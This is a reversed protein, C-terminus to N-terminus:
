HQFTTRCILNVGWDVKLYQSHSCAWWLFFGDCLIHTHTHPSVYRSPPMRLPLSWSLSSPTSYWAHWPLVTGASLMDKRPDPSGSRPTGRRAWRVETHWKRKRKMWSQSWSWLRLCLQLCATTYFWTHLIEPGGWMCRTRWCGTSLVPGDLHLHVLLRGLKCRSLCRVALSIRVKKQLRIVSTWKKEM